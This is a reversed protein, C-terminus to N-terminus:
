LLTWVQWAAPASLCVCLEPGFQRALAVCSAGTTVIDVMWPAAPRWQWGPSGMVVHTVRVALCHLKHSSELGLAWACSISCDVANASEAWSALASCARVWQRRYIHRLSTLSSGAPVMFCPLCFLWLTAAPTVFSLSSAIQSSSGKCSVTMHMMFDTNCLLVPAQTGIAQVTHAGCM